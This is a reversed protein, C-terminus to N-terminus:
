SAGGVKMLKLTLAHQLEGRHTLLCGALVETAQLHAIM